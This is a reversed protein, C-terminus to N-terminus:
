KRKSASIKKKVEGIEPKLVVLVDSSTNPLKEILSIFFRKLEHRTTSKKAAANSVIVAGRNFGLKNQAASITLHTSFYLRHRGKKFKGPPLRFKSSLM